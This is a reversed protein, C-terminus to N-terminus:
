SDEAASVKPNPNAHYRGRFHVLTHTLCNIISNNLTADSRPAGIFIDIIYSDTPLINQELFTLLILDSQKQPSYGKRRRHEEITIIYDIYNTKTLTIQKTKLHHHNVKIVRDVRCRM